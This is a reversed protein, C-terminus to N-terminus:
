NKKVGAKHRYLRDWFRYDNERRGGYSVEELKKKCYDNYETRDIKVSRQSSYDTGLGIKSKTGSGYRYTGTLKHTYTKRQNAL